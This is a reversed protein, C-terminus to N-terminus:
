LSEVLARITVALLVATGILMLLSLVIVWTAGLRSHWSGHGSPGRGGKLGLIARWAIRIMWVCVALALVVALAYQATGSEATRAVLM